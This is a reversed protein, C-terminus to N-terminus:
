ELDLLAMALLHLGEVALEAVANGTDTAPICHTVKESSLCCHRAECTLKMPEGVALMSSFAAVAVWLWGCIGPSNNEYTRHLATEWTESAPHTRRGELDTTGGAPLSIPAALGHDVTACTPWASTAGKGARHVEM